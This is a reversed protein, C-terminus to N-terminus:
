VPLIDQSQWGHALVKMLADHIEQESMNWLDKNGAINLLLQGLRQEPYKLWVDYLLDTLVGIEINTARQRMM